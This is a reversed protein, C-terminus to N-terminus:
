CPAQVATRDRAAMAVVAAASCLAFGAAHGSLGIVTGIVPAGIAQGLAIMLFPLAIGIAPRDYYVKVGWVLYTGTLLIYAAGFLCVAVAVLSPAQPASVVVATGLGLVALGGRHVTSLGFRNILDGAKGGALGAAGLLVWIAGLGGQDWGGLATLMEGGFMWVATSAVGLGAAATLVPAADPRLLPAAPQTPRAASLAIPVSHKPVVWAVWITIVAALAAFLAYAERWQGVAALAVPGALVVGVSTGANIWSNASPQQQSPIHTSVAAAMPPSSLGTSVGAILVALALAGASPSFAIGAMGVAAVAGAMVAVFRPGRREVLVAGLIIAGCFALYAGGGILGSQAPGLGIDVRIQPLFLGFAFRALGYSVAILAVGAPVLGAAPTM